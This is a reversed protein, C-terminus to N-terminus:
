YNNKSHEDWKGLNECNKYEPAINIYMEGVKEDVWKEMEKLKKQELAANQIKSYDDNLNAQHPKSKADLRIFRYAMEGTPLQYELVETMDGIEMADVAFFVEPPLQAVEFTSVGTQANLLRGANSKSTEDESYKQVARGFSISDTLILNRITDLKTKALEMDASTIEPKVLIHRANVANGRREILQILHYGYETKVLSSYEMPNLTFVAAEFEPVLEGRRVWGLDGGKAASGPDDSYVKALEEFSKEGSSVQGKIKTLKDKAKQLEQKNVKPKLVVESVEVEAGFYPLSDKPISRYFQKVESPTVTISEVSKAQMREMVIQDEIETRFDEKVEQVSKGYYAEFQTVDNNMYRLIQDIRTDLQQDVEEPTVVLSDIYAQQLFVKQVIIQDLLQCRADESVFGQQAKIYKVQEEVDSHLIIKDGIVALVKDVLGSQGNMGLTSFLLIAILTKKM